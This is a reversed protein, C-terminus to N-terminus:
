VMQGPMPMAAPYMRPMTQMGFIMEWTFARRMQVQTATISESSMTRVGGCTDTYHTASSLKAQESIYGAMQGRAMVSSPLNVLFPDESSTAEMPPPARMGRSKPAIFSQTPM